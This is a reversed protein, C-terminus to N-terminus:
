AHNTARTADFLPGWREIPHMGQYALSRAIQEGRRLSRTTFHSVIIPDGGTAVHVLDVSLYPKGGDGPFGGLRVVFGNKPAVARPAFSVVDGM